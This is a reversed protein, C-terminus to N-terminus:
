FIALQSFRVSPGGVLGVEVDADGQREPARGRADRHRRALRGPDYLRSSGDRGVRTAPGARHQRRPRARFVSRLDLLACRRACRAPAGQHHSACQPARLARVRRARARGARGGRRPEDSRGDRYIRTAGGARVPLAARRRHASLVMGETSLPPGRRDRALPIEQENFGAGQALSRVARPRSHATWPQLFDHRRAWLGLGCAVGVAAALWISAATTLGRVSEETRGRIISGAGLFGVGTIVGQIVRSTSDVTAASATAVVFVAAGLSVLAMTRLGAPKNRVERDLGILAGALVAAGLRLFVDLYGLSGMTMQVPAALDGASIPALGDVHPRRRTERFTHKIKNATLWESFSKSAGFLSDETGCGIWLLKLRGNADGANGILAQRLNESLERCQRIAASFGGVYSFLDINNLGISLAQGGGM